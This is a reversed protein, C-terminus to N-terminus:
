LDPRSLESMWSCSTDPEDSDWDSETYNTEDFDSNPSGPLHHEFADLIEELADKDWDRGAMRKAIDAFMRPFIMPSPHGYPGWSRKIWLGDQEVVKKFREFGEGIHSDPELTLEAHYIYQRYLHTVASEYGMHMYRPLEKSPRYVLLDFDMIANFEDVDDRLIFTFVFTPLKPFAALDVTRLWDRTHSIKSADVPLELSKAFTYYVPMSEHRIQRNVRTLAYPALKQKTTEPEIAFAYKYIDVRLEAPM